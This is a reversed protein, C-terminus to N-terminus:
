IHILSLNLSQVRFERLVFTSDVEAKALHGRRPKNIRSEKQEGFGLQVAQYGDKEQTKLQVIPCPGAEIVTVPVAKGSDEFVQTMGVKRGIIGNVM